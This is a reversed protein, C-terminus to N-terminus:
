NFLGYVGDEAQRRASSLHHLVECAKVAEGQGLEPWVQLTQKIGEAKEQMDSMTTFNGYDIEKNKEDKGYHGLQLLINADHLAFDKKESVLKFLYNIASKIPVNRSGILQSVM